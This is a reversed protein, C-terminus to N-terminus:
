KKNIMDSKFLRSSPSVNNLIFNSDISEKSNYKRFDTFDRSYLTQKTNLKVESLKNRIDEMEYRNENRKNTEYQLEENLNAITKKHSYIENAALNSEYTM